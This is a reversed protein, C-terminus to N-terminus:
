NMGGTMRSDVETAAEEATLERGTERRITYALGLMFEREPIEMEWDLKSVPLDRLCFLRPRTPAFRRRLGEFVMNRRVNAAALLTTDEDPVKGTRSTVIMAAVFMLNEPDEPVRDLEAKEVNGLIDKSIADKWYEIREDQM